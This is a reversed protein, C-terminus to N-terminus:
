KVLKLVQRFIELVIQIRCFGSVLCYLLTYIM